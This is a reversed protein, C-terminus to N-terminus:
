LIVLHPSTIMAFGPDLLATFFVVFDTAEFFDLLVLAVTRLCDGFRVKLEWTSDFAVLDSM